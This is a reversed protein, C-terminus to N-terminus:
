EIENARRRASCCQRGVVCGLTRIEIFQAITLQPVHIDLPTETDAGTKALKLIADRVPIVSTWLQAALERIRLRDGPKLWGMILAEHLMTYVTYGLYNQNIQGIPYNM